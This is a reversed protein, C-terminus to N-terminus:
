SRRQGCPPAAQAAVLVVVTRPDELDCQLPLSEACAGTAQKLAGWSRGTGIVVSVSFAAQGDGGKELGRSSM